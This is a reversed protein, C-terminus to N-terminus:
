LGKKKILILFIDMLLECMEFVNLVSLGMFLNLIGGISSVLELISGANTKDDSEIYSLADYFVFVRVVSNKVSEMSIASSVFDETLNPNSKVKKFFSEGLLACSTLFTEFITRNCQLPCSSLCSGEVVDNYQFSNLVRKECKDDLKCVDINRFFSFKSSSTCNCERIM